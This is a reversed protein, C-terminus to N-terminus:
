IVKDLVQVKRDRLALLKGNYSRKTEFIQPCVCV